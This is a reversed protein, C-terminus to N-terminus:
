GAFITGGGARNAGLVHEGESRAPKEKKIELESIKRIKEPMGRMKQAMKSLFIRKLIALIGGPLHPPLRQLASAQMMRLNYSFGNQFRWGAGVANFSRRVRQHRRM